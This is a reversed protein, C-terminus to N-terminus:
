RDVLDGASGAPLDMVCCGALAIVIEAGESMSGYEGIGARHSVPGGPIESAAGATRDDVQGLLPASRLRRGADSLQEGGHVQGSGRHRVGHQGAMTLVSGGSQGRQFGFDAREGYGYIISESVAQETHGPSEDLGSQVDYAEIGVGAQGFLSLIELPQLLM